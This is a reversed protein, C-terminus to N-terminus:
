RGLAVVLALIALVLMVPTMVFREPRHRSTASLAIGLALYGVVVWMAVVVPIADAVGGMLGARLLALVAFGAYLVVAVVSGVRQRVTPVDHGGPAFRGLPVGAALLIQFVALLGLVVAFVVAAVPTIVGGLKAPGRVPASIALDSGGRARTQSGHAESTSM